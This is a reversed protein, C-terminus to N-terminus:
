CIFAINIVIIDVLDMIKIFNGITIIQRARDLVLEQMIDMFAVVVAVM